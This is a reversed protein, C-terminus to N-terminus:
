AGTFGHRSPFTINHIQRLWEPDICEAAWASAIFWLFAHQRVTHVAEAM